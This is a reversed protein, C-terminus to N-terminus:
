MSVIFVLLRRGHEAQFAAQLQRLADFTVLPCERVQLGALSGIQPLQTVLQRRHLHPLHWLSIDRLRQCGSFAALGAGYLGIVSEDVAGSGSVKLRRLDPVAGAAAALEDDLLHGKCELTLEQLGTNRAISGAALGGSGSGSCSNCHSGGARRPAKSCGLQQLQLPVATLMSRQRALRCVAHRRAEPPMDQYPPNQTRDISMHLSTLRTLHGVAAEAGCGTAPLKMHAM